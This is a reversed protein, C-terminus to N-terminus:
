RLHGGSNWYSMYESTTLENLKKGNVRVDKGKVDVGDGYSPKTDTNNKAKIEARKHNVWAAHNLMYIQPMTLAM